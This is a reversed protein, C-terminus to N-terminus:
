RLSRKEEIERRSQGVWGAVRGATPFKVAMAVWLLGAMALSWPVQELLYAILNFFTAGELVAASVILAVQYGSVLAGLQETVGAGRNSQPAFAEDDKPLGAAQAQARERVLTAVINQAVLAVLGVVLAATTLPHAAGPAVADQGKVLFVVVGAFFLPGSLLGFLIVQMVGAAPAIRKVLTEDM